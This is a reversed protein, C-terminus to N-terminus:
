PTSASSAAAEVHCTGYDKSVKEVKFVPDGGANKANKVRSGHVKIKDGAKIEAVDGEISYTKSDSTKLKLGNPGSVACGTLTHHSHSVALAAVVVVAAGVGIAAGAVQGGSPGAIRGGSQPSALSGSVLVCTLVAIHAIHWRKNFHTPAKSCAHLNRDPCVTSV